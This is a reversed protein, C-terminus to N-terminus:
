SLESILVEADILASARSPSGLLLYDYPSQALQVADM